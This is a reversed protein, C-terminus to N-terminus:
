VNKWTKSLYRYNKFKGSVQFSFEEQNIFVRALIGLFRCLMTGNSPLYRWTDDEM